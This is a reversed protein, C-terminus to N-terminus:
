HDIASETSTVTAGAEAIRALGSRWNAEARSSVADGAVHVQLGRALLDHATQSVCIHTEVGCVLVQSRGAASIATMCGEDAACSFTLKDLPEIGAPLREAVEPIPGGMRAAYQLTAVVPVQLVAAADLLTCVNRVVREREWAARLFPEQMDVVLLVTDTVRLLDPHRPLMDSM